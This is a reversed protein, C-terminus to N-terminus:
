VREQEAVTALALGIFVYFTPTTCLTSDNFLSCALYGICGLFCGFGLKDATTQIVNQKYFSICKKVFCGYFILLCILSLLGTQIWKMLYDNHAREIIRGPNDAYIMKGFYDNQPFVEAFTDPGSGILIYNSLLPLIRSWIYVRGSGLSELGHFEVHPVDKISDIKGWDTYYYYREEDFTFLLTTDELFTMICPIGDMDICTAYADAAFSLRIEDDGAQQESIITESEDMLIVTNGDETFEEAFALIYLKGNYTIEIGRKTTLISSLASSKQEDMLRNLYKSGTAFDYIFFAAIIGLMSPVIVKLMHINKNGRICFIFAIFAIGLGIYAARTYTFWCLILANALFVGNIVRSKKNEAYLTLVFFICIFMVLFVAAFNPNYLTLFVNNGSFVDGISGGYLDFLEEPMVIKQVWEYNLLDHKLIQFWGIISMPVFMSYIGYLITKFDTKKMIQYTYFGVLSYSLLVFTTELSIGNGLWSTRYNSSFFSSILVFICYGFLPYFLKFDKTDEKYLALRFALIITMVGAIVLLFIQRYYNYFDQTISYDSHWAYNSLGYDYEALYVTFPLICLTIIIPLLLDNFSQKKSKKKTQKQKM